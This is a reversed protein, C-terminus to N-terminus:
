CAFCSVKECREWQWSRIPWLDRLEFVFPRRKIWALICGGLATFIQPSDGRNVDPTPLFLGGVVGTV